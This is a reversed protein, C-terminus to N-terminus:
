RRITGGDSDGGFDGSGGGQDGADAARGICNNWQAYGDAMRGYYEVLCLNRLFPQQWWSFDGASRMCDEYMNYVSILWAEWNGFCDRFQVPRVAFQARKAKVALRVKARVGVRKMTEPPGGDLFELLAADIMTTVTEPTDLDPPREELAAAFQRLALVAASGALVTKLALRADETGKATDFTATQGGRTVNIAQGKSMTIEVVDTQKAIRVSIEDNRNITKTVRLDNSQVDLTLNNRADRGTTWKADLASDYQRHRAPRESANGTAHGAAVGSFMAATLTGVVAAKM